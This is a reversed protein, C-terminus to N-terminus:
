IISQKLRLPETARLPKSVQKAAWKPSLKEESVLRKEERRYVEWSLLSYIIGLANSLKGLEGLIQGLQEMSTPKLQPACTHSNYINLVKQNHEERSPKTYNRISDILLELKRLRKTFTDNSGNAVPLKATFPNESSASATSATDPVYENFNFDETVLDQYIDSASYFANSKLQESNSPLHIRDHRSSPFQAVRSIPSYASPSPPIANSSGPNLLTRETKVARSETARRRKQLDQRSHVSAMEQPSRRSTGGPASLPNQYMSTVLTSPAKTAQAIARLAGAWLETSQAQQFTEQAAIEGNIVLASTISFPNSTFSIELREISDIM